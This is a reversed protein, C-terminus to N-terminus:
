LSVTSREISIGIGISISSSSRRHGRGCGGRHHCCRSSSSITGSSDKIMGAQTLRHWKKWGAM